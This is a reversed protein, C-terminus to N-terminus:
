QGQPNLANHILHRIVPGLESAHVGNFPPAKDHGPHAMSDFTSHSLNSDMTDRGHLSKELRSLKDASRAHLEVRLVSAQWLCLGHYVGQASLSAILGSLADGMGASAMGANGWPCVWPKLSLARPAACCTGQGKLVVLCGLQEALNQAAQQRDHEIIETTVGLLRAAEGPHPTIVTIGPDQRARILAKLSPNKALLNLADADLVLRVNSLLAKELWHQALEGQGLGPGIAVTQARSLHDMLVDSMAHLPLCMLEPYLMDMCPADKALLGLIVWGAGSFLATRGALFAAGVMGSEGGVIVVRGCHSKNEFDKRRLQRLWLWPEQAPNEFKLLSM